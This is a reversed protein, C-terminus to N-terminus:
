INQSLFQKIIIFSFSDESIQPFRENKLNKEQFFVNKFNQITPKRCFTRLKPKENVSVEIWIEHAGTKM